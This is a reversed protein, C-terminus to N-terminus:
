KKINSQKLEWKIKNQDHNWEHLSQTKGIYDRTTTISKENHQAWYTTTTKIVLTKESKDKENTEEIDQNNTRNSKM